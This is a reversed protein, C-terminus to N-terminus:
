REVISVSLSPKESDATDLGGAGAWIADVMPQLFLGGLQRVMVRVVQVAESRDTSALGSERSKTVESRTLETLRGILAGHEGAPDLVARRLYDVVPPHELLMRQVARDREAIVEGPTGDTPASAIAQAHYDVILQEVANRLGEKTKFHHQVLGVTVGAAAAVARMSVRGEGQDAYLDLAANRIKAKATLDGPSARPDSM